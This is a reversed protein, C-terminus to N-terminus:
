SIRSRVCEKSMKTHLAQFHFFTFIWMAVLFTEFLPFMLELFYSRIKKLPPYFQFKKHKKMKLRCKVFRCYLLAVRIVISLDNSSVSFFLRLHDVRTHFILSSHWCRNWWRCLHASYCNPTQARSSISFYTLDCLFDKM